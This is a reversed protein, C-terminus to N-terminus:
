PRTGGGERMWANLESRLAVLASGDRHVPIRQPKCATLAYVRSTPADIYAAIREAGRLWGDNNHRREKPLRDAVLRALEAMAEPSLDFTARM